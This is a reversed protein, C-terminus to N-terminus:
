VWAYDWFSCARLGGLVCTVSRLHCSPAERRLTSSLLTSSSTGCACMQPVCHVFLVPLAKEPVFPSTSVQRRAFYQNNDVFGKTVKCTIPLSLLFFSWDGKSPYQATIHMVQKLTKKSSIHVIVAFHFSCMGLSFMKKCSSQCHQLCLFSFRCGCWYPFFSGIQAIKVELLCFRM